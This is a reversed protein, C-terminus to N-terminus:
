PVNCSCLPGYTACIYLIIIYSICLLNYLTFTFTFTFTFQTIDLIYIKLWFIFFFFIIEDEGQQSGYQHWHLWSTRSRLPELPRLTTYHYEPTPAFFSWEKWFKAAPFRTYLNYHQDRFTYLKHNTIICITCESMEKRFHSLIEM